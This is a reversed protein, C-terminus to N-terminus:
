GAIPLDNEVLQLAGRSQGIDFVADDEFGRQGRLVDMVAIAYQIARDVSNRAMTQPLACELGGVAAAFKRAHIEGSAGRM